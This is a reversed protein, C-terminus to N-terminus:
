AALVTLRGCAIAISPEPLRHTALLKSTVIVSNIPAVTGHTVGSDTAIRPLESPERGQVFARRVQLPTVCSSFASEQPIVFWNM